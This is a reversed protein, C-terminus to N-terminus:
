ADQAMTQIQFAQNKFSVNEQTSALMV